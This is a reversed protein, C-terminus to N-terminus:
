CGYKYVIRHRLLLPTIPQFFKLQLSMPDQSLPNGHALDLFQQIVEQRPDRFVAVLANVM